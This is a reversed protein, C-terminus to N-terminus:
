KTSRIQRMKHWIINSFVTQGGGGGKMKLQSQIHYHQTHSTIIHFFTSYLPFNDMFTYLVHFAIDTVNNLPYIYQVTNM